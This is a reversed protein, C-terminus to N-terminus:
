GGVMAMETLNMVDSLEKKAASLTAQCRSVEEKGKELVTQIKARDARKAKLPQMFENEVLLLLSDLQDDFLQKISSDMNKKLFAIRQSLEGLTSQKLSRLVEATKETRAKAEKQEAAARKKEEKEWRKEAKRQLVEFKVKKADNASAEAMLREMADERTELKGKIEAREEKYATVNSDDYSTREGYKADSYMGAEEVTYPERMSDPSPQSGLNELQRAQREYAAQAAHVQAAMNPVNAAEVELEDKKAEHMELAKELELRKQQYEIISSLNVQVDVKIEPLDPAIGVLQQKLEGTQKKMQELYEAKLGQLHREIETQQEGWVADVEKTVKIYRNKAERPLSIKKRGAEVERRVYDETLAIEMEDKLSVLPQVLKEQVASIIEAAALRHEERHENEAQKMELTQNTIYADLSELEQEQQKLDTAESLQQLQAELGSLIQGQITQLKKLPTFFVEKSADGSSCLDSIRGILQEVGSRRRQEADESLAWKASVGMLNNKDTIQVLDSGSLNPLHRAFNDQVIALKEAVRETESKERDHDDEPELVKDWMNVVTLFKRFSNQITGTLFQWERSNGGLQEVSQVWIAIHSSAIADRTIEEHHEVVSELGPTDIIVLGKDLLEHQAFVDIRKLDRRADRNNKDLETGWRELVNDDGWSLEEDDRNDEIFNLRIYKEGERGEEPSQLFTNIATTVQPSSSLLNIGLLANILRSKGRSFEGIVVIRVKDSELGQRIASLDACSAKLEKSSHENFIEETKELYTLVKAVKEKREALAASLVTNNM